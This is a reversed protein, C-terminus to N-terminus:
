KDHPKKDLDCFKWIVPYVHKLTDDGQAETLMNQWKDGHLSQRSKLDKM